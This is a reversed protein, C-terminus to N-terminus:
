ISAITTFTGKVDLQPSILESLDIVDSLPVCGDAEYPCAEVWIGAVCVGLGIIPVIIGVISTKHRVDTTVVSRDTIVLVM